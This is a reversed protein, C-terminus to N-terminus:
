IHIIEAIHIKVEFENGREGWDNLYSNKMIIEGGVVRRM